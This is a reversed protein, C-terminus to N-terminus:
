ASDGPNRLGFLVPNEGELVTEGQGNVVEHRFRAIGIGPRSKLVRKSIVTSTGSLIDGPFVPRRWNLEDIGPSGQATSDSIFAEYMMRMFIACTHWGSASLGGLLSARGAEEDLHMPQPDFQKAFAIIEDASVHAPGLNFVRGESLDEYALTM